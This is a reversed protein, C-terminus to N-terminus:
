RVPEEWDTACGGEPVLIITTEDPIPMRPNERVSLFVGSKTYAQVAVQNYFRGEITHYVMERLCNFGKVPFEGESRGFRKTLLVSSTLFLLTMMSLFDCVAPFFM